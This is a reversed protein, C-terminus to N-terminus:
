ATSRESLPQAAVESAIFFALPKGTLAAIQRLTSISPESKDTEWRQVTRQGVDLAVALQEVNRYGAEKRADRIRSGLTNLLDAV